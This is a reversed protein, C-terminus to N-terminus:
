YFVFTSKGCGTVFQIILILKLRLNSNLRIYFQYIM